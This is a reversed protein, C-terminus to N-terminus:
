RGRDAHHDETSHRDRAVIVISTLVALLPILLFLLLYVTM